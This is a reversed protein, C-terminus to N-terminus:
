FFIISYFCQHTNRMNAITFIITTIPPPAISNLPLHIIFQQNFTMEMCNLFFDCKPQFQVREEHLEAGAHSKKWIAHPAILNTSLLAYWIQYTFLSLNSFYSPLIKLFCISERQIESEHFNMWCLISGTSKEYIQLISFYM